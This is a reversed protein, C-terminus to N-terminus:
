TAGGEGGPMRGPEQPTGRPVIVRRPGPAIARAFTALARAGIERPGFRAVRVLGRARLQARLGDDRALRAIGAALADEDLPDVFLAADGCTEPLAAADSCLVPTGLAMAEVPPLGIGEFLSPYVLAVAGRILADREADGLRGLTRIAGPSLSRAAAAASGDRFWPAGVIVLQHDRAAGERVASAFARILRVLNKRPHLNGVYVFYPRRVGWTRFAEDGLATSRDAPPLLVPPLVAVNEPALRYSEILDRRSFESGTIVVRALRVALPVLAQLRLRTRLPYLKPHHLFSLDHVVLASPAGILPGHNISLFLEARDRALALPVSVLYRWARSGGGIRREPFLEADTAGDPVAVGARLLIPFRDRERDAVAAIAALLGRLYTEDGGRATGLVTADIAVRM